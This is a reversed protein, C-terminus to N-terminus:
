VSSPTAAARLLLGLDEEHEAATAGPVSALPSLDSSRSAGTSQPQYGREPRRCKSIANVLHGCGWIACLMARVAWSSRIENLRAELERNSVAQAQLREAARSAADHLRASSDEAKALQRELEGVRALLSAGDTTAAVQGSETTTAQCKTAILQHAAGQRETADLRALVEAVRQALLRGCVEPAQGADGGDMANVDRAPQCGSAPLAASIRESVIVVQARLERLAQRESELAADSRGALAQASEVRQLAEDNEQQLKRVQEQAEALEQGLAQAKDNSEDKLMQFMKRSGEKMKQQEASRQQREKELAEVATAHDARAKRHEETLGEVEADRRRLAEELREAEETKTRLAESLSDSEAVKSQLAKNLSETEEAKSQLSESLSSNVARLSDIQEQTLLVM